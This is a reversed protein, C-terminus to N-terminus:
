LNHLERKLEKVAPLAENEITLSISQLVEQIIEQKMKELKENQRAELYMVRHAEHLAREVSDGAGKIMRTYMDAHNRM